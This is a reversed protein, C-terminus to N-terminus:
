LEVGADMLRQELESKTGRITIGREKAKAILEAKTLESIHIVEESDQEDDTVLTEPHFWELHMMMREVLHTEHQCFNCCYVDYGAFKSGKRKITYLNEM